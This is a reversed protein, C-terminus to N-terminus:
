LILCMASPTKDRWWSMTRARRIMQATAAIEDRVQKSAIKQEDTLANFLAKKVLTELVAGVAM